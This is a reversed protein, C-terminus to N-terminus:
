RHSVREFLWLVTAAEGIGTTPDLGFFSIPRLSGDSNVAALV